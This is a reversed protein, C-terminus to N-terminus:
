IGSITRGFTEEKTKGEEERVVLGMLGVLRKMVRRSQFMVPLAWLCLYGLGVGAGALLWDGARWVQRKAEWQFDSHLMELVDRSINVLERAASYLDGCDTYMEASVGRYGTCLFIDARYAFFGAQLGKRYISTSYNTDHLLINLHPLSYPLYGERDLNYIKATIESLEEGTEQIEQIPNRQFSPGPVAIKLPWSSDMFIAEMTWTWLDIFATFRLGNDLLVTPYCAVYQGQPQLVVIYILFYLLGSGIPLALLWPALHTIPRYLLHPRVPPLSSDIDIDHLSSLREKVTQLNGILRSRPLATFVGSLWKAQYHIKGLLVAVILGEVTLFVLMAVLFYAAQAARAELDAKEMVEFERLSKMLATTLDGKMGNRVLSYVQANHISLNAIPLTLIQRSHDRYDSLADRLTKERPCPVTGELEWMLLSNQIYLAQFSPNSASKVRAWILPETAALVAVSQAVVNKVDVTMEAPFFGANTLDLFRGQGALRTTHIVQQVLEVSVSNGLMNETVDLLFVTVVVSWVLVFLASGMLVCTLLRYVRSIGSNVRRGATRGSSEQEYGQESHKALLAFKPAALLATSSREATRIPQSFASNPWNSTLILTHVSATNVTILCMRLSLPPSHRVWLTKNPEFPGIYASVPASILSETDCLVKGFNETHGVTFNDSLVAFERNLNAPKFALILVAVGAEATVSIQTIFEQLFGTSTLLPLTSPHNVSVSSRKQSFCHLFRLHSLALPGPILAFIRMVALQHLDYHLFSAAARNCFRIQGIEEENGDINAIIVGISPHSLSLESAFETRLLTETVVKARNEYMFAESPRQLVTGLFASFARLVHPNDQDALLLRRFLM